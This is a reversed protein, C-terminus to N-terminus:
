PRVLQVEEIVSRSDRIDKDQYSPRAIFGYNEGFSGSLPFIYSLTLGGNVVVKDQLRGLINIKSRTIDSTDEEPTPCGM